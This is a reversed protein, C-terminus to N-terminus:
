SIRYASKRAMSPETWSSPPTSRLIICSSEGGGVPRQSSLKLGVCPGAMAALTQQQFQHSGKQIGAADLTHAADTARPQPWPDLDRLGRFSCCTLEQSGGGYPARFGIRTGRTTSEDTVQILTWLPLHIQVRARLCAIGVANQTPRLSKAGCLCCITWVLCWVWDLRLGRLGCVYLKCSHIDLCLALHSGLRSSLLVMWSGNFFFGALLSLLLIFM